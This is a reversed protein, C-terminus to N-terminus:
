SDSSSEEDLESERESGSDESEIEFENEISKCHCKKHRIMTAASPWYRKCLKCISKTLKEQISPCYLDFPVEDYEKGEM